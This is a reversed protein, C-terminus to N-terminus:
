ADSAFIDFKLTQVPLWNELNKQGGAIKLIWYKWKQPRFRFDAWYFTKNQDRSCLKRTELMYRLFQVIPPSLNKFESFTWLNAYSIGIWLGNDWFIYPLHIKINSNFIEVLKCNFNCACHLQVYKGLKFICYSQSAAINKM